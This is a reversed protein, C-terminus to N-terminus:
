KSDTEAPSIIEVRLKKKEVFAEDILYQVLRDSVGKFDYFPVSADNYIQVKDEHIHVRYGFLVIQEVQQEKKM